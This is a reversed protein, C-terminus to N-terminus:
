WQNGRRHICRVCLKRLLEFEDKSLSDKFAFWDGIVEALIFQIKEDKDKTEYNSIAVGKSHKRRTKEKDMNCIKQWGCPM